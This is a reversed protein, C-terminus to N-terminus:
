DVLQASTNEVMFAGKYGTLIKGKASTMFRKAILLNAVTEAATRSVDAKPVSIRVTTEKLEDDLFVLQLEKKLVSMTGTAM